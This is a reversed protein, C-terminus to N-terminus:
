NIPQKCYMEIELTKFRYSGALFEKAQSSELPYDPHIYSNGLNSGSDKNVNSDASLWLDSGGGEEPYSGYVQIESDRLGFAADEPVSCKIKFPKDDKNILSFLYANEDEMFENKKNWAGDIYGGFVNGNESKMITLCNKQFACKSHFDDFGFGHESARYTLKWKSDSAIECLRILDTKMGFSSM